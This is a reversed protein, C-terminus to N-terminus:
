VKHYTIEGRDEWDIITGERREGGERRQVKIGELMREEERTKRGGGDKSVM